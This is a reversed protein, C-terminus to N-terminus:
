KRYFLGGMHSDKASDWLICTNCMRKKKMEQTQEEERVYRKCKKCRFNM